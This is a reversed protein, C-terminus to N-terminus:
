ESLYYIHLGGAHLMLLVSKGDNLGKHHCLILIQETKPGNRSDQVTTTGGPWNSARQARHETKSLGWDKSKRKRSNIDM